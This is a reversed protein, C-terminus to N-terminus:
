KIKLTGDPPLFLISTRNLSLLQARSFFFFMFWFLLINFLLLM